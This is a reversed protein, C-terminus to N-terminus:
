SSGPCTVLKNCLSESLWQHRCCLLSVTALKSNGTLRCTKPLGHLSWVSVVLSALLNSGPFKRSHPSPALWHEVASGWLSNIHGYFFFVSKSGSIHWWVSLILLWIGNLLRNFTFWIFFVEYNDHLFITVILLHSIPYFPRWPDNRGAKSRLKQSLLHLLFFQLSM